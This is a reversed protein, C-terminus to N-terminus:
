IRPPQFPTPLDNDLISREATLFVRWASEPLPSKSMDAPTDLLLTSILGDLSHRCCCRLGLDRDSPQAGPDAAQTKGHGQHNSHDASDAPAASQTEVHHPCVFPQDDAMLFRSSDLVFFVILVLAIAQTSRATGDTQQSAAYM